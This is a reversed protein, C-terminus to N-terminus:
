LQGNLAIPLTITPTEAPEPVPSYTTAAELAATDLGRQRIEENNALIDEICTRHHDTAKVLEKSAKGLAERLELRKKLLEEDPVLHVVEPGTEGSLPM